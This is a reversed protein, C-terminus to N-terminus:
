KGNMLVLPSFSTSRSTENQQEAVFTLLLKPKNNKREDTTEYYNNVRHLFISNFTFDINHIPTGVLIRLDNKQM